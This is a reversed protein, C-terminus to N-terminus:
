RRRGTVYNVIWILVCAGVVSTIINAFTGYSYFGILRFLMSGIAGGIMGVIVSVPISFNVSMIQGALWGSVGSIVLSVVLNFLSYM